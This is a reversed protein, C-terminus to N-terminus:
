IDIEEVEELYFPYITNLELVSRIRSITQSVKDEPTASSECLINRCIQRIEKQIQDTLGHSRMEASIRIYSRAIVRDREHPDKIRNHKKVLFNRILILSLGELSYEDFDESNHIQHDVLAILQELQSLSLQEM